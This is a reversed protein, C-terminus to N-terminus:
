CQVGVLDCTNKQKNEKRGNLKEKMARGKACTKACPLPILSRLRAEALSKVGLWGPKPSKERPFDLEVTGAYPVCTRNVEESEKS